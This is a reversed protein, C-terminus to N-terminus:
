SDMKFRSDQIFIISPGIMIMQNPVFGGNPDTRYIVPINVGRPGDPGESVIKCFEGLEQATNAADLIKFPVGLVSLLRTAKAFPRIYEKCGKSPVKVMMGSGYFDDLDDLLGRMEKKSLTDLVKGVKGKTSTINGTALDLKHGKYEGSLIHAHPDSPLPDGDNIRVDIVMDGVNFKKLGSPDVFTVPSASHGNFLNLGGAFGIPDRSIFRGLDPAYHRHGM